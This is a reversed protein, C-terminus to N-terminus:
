LKSPLNIKRIKFNKKNHLFYYPLYESYKTSKSKLFFKKKLAKIRYVEGYTGAAAKKAITIDAKEKKHNKILIEIINSSIFPCDGTM